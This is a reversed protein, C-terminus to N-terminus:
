KVTLPAGAPTMAVTMLLWVLPGTVVAVMVISTFAAVLGPV